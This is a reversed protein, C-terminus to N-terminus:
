LIISLEIQYFTIHITMSFWLSNKTDALAEKIKPLDRKINRPDLQVEQLTGEGLRKFKQYQIDTKGTIRTM